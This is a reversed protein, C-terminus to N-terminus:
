FSNVHLINDYHISDSVQFDLSEAIIEQYSVFSGNYDIYNDQISFYRNVETCGCVGCEGQKFIDSVKSALAM